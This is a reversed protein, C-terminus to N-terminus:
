EQPILLKITKGKSPGHLEIWFGKYPILKCGGPTTDDCTTYGNSNAGSDNPNYLWIQKSGIDNSELESPTMVTGDVIYRCDAWEVPSKGIFGSMNYRYPGTGDDYDNTVPVLSFEVCRNATCGSSTANYDVPAAGNESWSSNNKSGLWYGIGFELNDSSGLSTYSSGNDAGNYTRKYLRWDTGISGNM